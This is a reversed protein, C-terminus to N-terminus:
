PVDTPIRPKSDKRHGLRWRERPSVGIPTLMRSQDHAWRKRVQLWDDLPIRPPVERITLYRYVVSFPLPYYFVNDGDFIHTLIILNQKQDVIFGVFVAEISPTVDNFFWHLIGDSFKSLM